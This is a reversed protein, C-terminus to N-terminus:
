MYDGRGGCGVTGTRNEQAPLDITDAFGDIAIVSGDSISLANVGSSRRAM